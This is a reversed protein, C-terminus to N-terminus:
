QGASDVVGLMVQLGARLQLEKGASEFKSAHEPGDDVDLTVGKLGIVAGAQAAEGQKGPDGGPMMAARISLKMPKKEGDIEVQDFAIALSNADASKVEGFINAGRSVKLGGPLTVSATVKAKVPDGPKAKKAKISTEM